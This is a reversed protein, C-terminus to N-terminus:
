AEGVGNNGAGGEGFFYVADGPGKVGLIPESKRYAGNTAIDDPVRKPHYFYEGDGKGKKTKSYIGGHSLVVVPDCSTMVESVGEKERLMAALVDATAPPPKQRSVVAGM